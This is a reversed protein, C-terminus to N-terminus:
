ALYHVTEEILSATGTYPDGPSDWEMSLYGKFGHQKLYGFTRPMDVHVTRGDAAVEQNKVHCICCAHAFMADIGSYAHDQSSTALSNCFDPLTHLWPSHAKEVVEVLFFPDQSIPDDNELSVVVDQKAAYDVVRRLSDATRSADPRADKAQPLSLRISQSGLGHAIDIWKHGFAVFRDREALSAAYASAEGDAAINIVQCQARDVSARFRDLYAPDTSPFHGSWPEIKNIGFRTKVHAAFDELRILSTEPAKADSGPIFERFPYSAVAIRDRPAAPFHLSPSSTSDLKFSFAAAAIAARSLFERRSTPPM